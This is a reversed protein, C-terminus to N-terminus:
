YYYNGKPNVHINININSEDKIQQVETHKEQNYVVVDTICLPPVSHKILFEAQKKRMRDPDEDIPQWYRQKALVLDVQDIHEINNYFTSIATKAHGDTFCWEDCLDFINSLNCCLYVIDQQHRQTINREGTKINLLMPSLPGFYFPVYDGLSGNPPNVPVIHDHRQQILKSDGINIYHPDAQPHGYSFLGHTLAYRVNAIHTIRFIWIKNLVPVPMLAFNDNLSVNALGLYSLFLIL